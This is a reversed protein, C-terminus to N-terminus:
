RGLEDAIAAWIAAAGVLAVWVILLVERYIPEISM